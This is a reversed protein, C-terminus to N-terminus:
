DDLTYFDPGYIAEFAETTGPVVIEGSLIKAKAEEVAAKAEESLLTDTPAIGM